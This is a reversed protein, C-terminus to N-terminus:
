ATADAESGRRVLMEAAAAALAIALLWTALRSAPPEGMVAATTETSARAITAPLAQALLSDSAAVWPLASTCPELLRAAFRRFAPTLPLDGTSSVPVAVSRICGTGLTSETVAPEGDSWRAIVRGAPPNTARVMPAVVTAARAAARAWGGSGALVTVAFATDPPTRKAWASPAIAVPWLVTARGDRAWASDAATVSDRVVRVAAGARVDGILAVSVAVPDGVTARVVPRGLPGSDNPATGARVLRVPGAWTRRIAASADDLERAAFPSVIVIEVSDRDRELRRGSRVAGVLAASLSGSATSAAAATSDPTPGIVERATSDFLVLADGPRFVARAASPVEPGVGAFRSRDVVVVRATGRRKPVLQPRALALGVLLVIAVRLALLAIDAPRVARSVMRVPREPAFRATPLPSEPPRRWALLHLAVTGLMVVGAVWAFFPAALTM